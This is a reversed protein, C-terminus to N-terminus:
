ILKIYKFNATNTKSRTTKSQNPWTAVETYTVPSHHWQQWWGVAQMVMMLTCHEQDCPSHWHTWIHCIYQCAERVSACLTIKAHPKYTANPLYIKLLITFLHETWQNKISTHLLTPDIHLSLYYYLPVYIQLTTPMNKEPDYTLLTFYIYVLAGSWM